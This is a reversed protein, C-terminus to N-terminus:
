SSSRERRLRGYRRTVMMSLPEILPSYESPITMMRASSERYAKHSPPLVIAQPCLSLAQATPM